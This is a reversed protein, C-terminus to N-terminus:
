SLSDRWFMQKGCELAKLKEQTKMGFERLLKQYNLKAVYCLYPLDWHSNFTWSDAELRRLEDLSVVPTIMVKSIEIAKNALIYMAQTYTELLSPSSHLIAIGEEATPIYTELTVEERNQFLLETGRAYAFALSGVEKTTNATVEDALDKFPRYTEDTFGETDWSLESIRKSLREIKTTLNETM